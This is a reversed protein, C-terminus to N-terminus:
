KSITAKAADLTKYFTTQPHNLTGILNGDDYKGTIKYVNFGSMFLATTHVVAYEDDLYVVDSM